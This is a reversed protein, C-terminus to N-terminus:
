CGSIWNCVVYDTNRTFAARQQEAWLGFFVLAIVIVIGMEVKFVRDVARRGLHPHPIHPAHPRNLPRESGSRPRPTSAPSGSARSARVPRSGTGSAARSITPRQADRALAGVLLTPMREPDPAPNKVRGAPHGGASSGHEAQEAPSTRAEPVHHRHGFVEIRLWLLGLVAVPWIEEAAGAAVVSAAAACGAIRYAKGSQALRGRQILLHVTVLWLVSVWGLAQLVVAVSM